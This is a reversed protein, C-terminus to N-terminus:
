DHFAKIAIIGFARGSRDKDRRYSHFNQNKFSCIESIEIQTMPVGVDTLMDMNAQKLDLLYKRGKNKLYKSDFKNKFDEDVEYNDQCISPGFYAFVNKPNTNYNNSMSNLTKMLIKKETGMWGSHVAAIVKQKSDYLYINTCDATSVALGLDAKNTILADGELNTSFSNVLNIIDSHNQKQVIVNETNLGLQAFLKQRNSKVLSENDNISKSMNFSFVDNLSHNVKKSMGFILIPFQSFIKPKSIIM